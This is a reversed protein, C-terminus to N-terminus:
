MSNETFQHPGLVFGHLSKGIVTLSNTPNVRCFDTTTNDTTNKVPDKNEEITEINKSIEKYEYCKMRRDERQAENCGVLYSYLIQANGNEMTSSVFFEDHFLSIHKIQQKPDEDEFEM